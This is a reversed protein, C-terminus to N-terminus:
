ENESVPAKTEPAPPEETEPLPSPTPQPIMEIHCRSSMWEFVNIAGCRAIHNMSTFPASGGNGTCKEQSIDPEWGPRPAIFGKLEFWGNDTKRCDMLLEVFWAQGREPGEFDLYNDGKSWAPYYKCTAPATPNHRNPMACKDLRQQYPGPACATKRTIGGRIFLYQSYPLPRKFFIMTRQLTEPAPSETEPVPPEETEPVPTETEPVPPEETEPLPPPTPQPIMEIHCRSSMWEFVNIAGCRAIHNMSKFPASGGNGTCKEQSIDPEWGPRPAIFGKLEFWGNDTKRCDMLLEVFWAGGYKNFPHFEKAKTNNTTWATPTGAAERGLFFGQGREPGEFDLYNDGKSWAPYYKCTAPATTNHRIPIACKDLRQQYPGPACANKRTLGGRIFLYQSYPLPRKFFIITRQLIEPPPSETEPVPTEQEEETATEAAETALEEVFPKAAAGLILLWPLLYLLAGM